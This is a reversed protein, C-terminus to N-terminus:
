AEEAQGDLFKKLQACTAEVGEPRIAYRRETEGDLTLHVLGALRLASLHHVVTPARLRLRRSLQAPTLAQLSLYRLIRLRTPDALAKLSRLIGEPVTEGPVLPSDEPRGGFLVALHDPTIKDYVILPTTWYVPVFTIETVDPLTAFHVGQSLEGFLDPLALEASLAQARALSEQLVPQIRREEEAFFVSQYAKLAELLQEGFEAPHAFSDLTWDIEKPQPKEIKSHALEILKARDEANWAGRRSIEQYIKEFEDYKHSPSFLMQALRERAPIKGLTWLATASDKPDPLSHIWYIPVFLTEYAEELFKREAPPIRSRVGAAWSGRVGYRDPHHLVHLSAFLDYATGWDWHIHIEPEEAEQTM